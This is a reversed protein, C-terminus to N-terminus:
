NNYRVKLPIILHGIHQSALPWPICIELVNGSLTSMLGNCRINM